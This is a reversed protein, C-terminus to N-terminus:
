GAIPGLSRLRELDEPRYSASFRLFGGTPSDWPMVALGHGDLMRGCADWAGSVTASDISQPVPCLVYMGADTPYPSFGLLQLVERLAAVRSQYAERTSALHEEDLLCQRTVAVQLASPPTWAFEGYRSVTRVLTAEGTLFAVPLGTIGFHKSLAHLELTPQRLVGAVEGVLVSPTAETYCLPAYTADNFIIADDSLQETLHRATTSSLLAGTPNNPANIAALRIPRLDVDDLRPEFNREQDQWCTRVDVGRQAAVRAFTPYAPEIVLAADGHELLTAVMATIAPRGGPVFAIDEAPRDIGYTRHLMTSALAQVEELEEKRATRLVLEPQSNVTELVSHPPSPLQRGLAFDIVDSGYARMRSRIISFPYEPVAVEVPKDVRLADSKQNVEDMAM